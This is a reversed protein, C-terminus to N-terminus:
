LREDDVLHQCELAEAHVQGDEAQHPRTLGQDLGLDRPHPGAHGVQLVEGPLRQRCPRPRGDTDQGQRRPAEQARQQEAQRSGSQGGAVALLRGHRAKGVRDCESGSGRPHGPAALGGAVDVGVERVVGRQHAQQGAAQEAQREAEGRVGPVQQLDRRAAQRRPGALRLGHHRAALGVGVVDARGDGRGAARGHHDDVVADLESAERRDGAPGDPLDGGDRGDAPQHLLLPELVQQLGQGGQPVPFDVEAAPDVTLSRQLLPQGPQAVAEPQALLDAQHTGPVAVLDHGRQGGGIDERQSGRHGVIAVAVAYGVNEHLGHGAGQGHDGRSHAANGLQDLVPDVSSQHRRIVRGTDGIGQLLKEVVGAQPGPQAGRRPDADLVRVVDVLCGAPEPVDETGAAPASSSVAGHEVAAGAETDSRNASASLGPTM